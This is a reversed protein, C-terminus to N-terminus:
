AGSIATPRTGFRIGFGDPDVITFDRLGYPRDAISAFVPIHRENVKRWVADVDPVLVRVNMSPAVGKPALDPRREVMFRVGEWALLAFDGDSRLLEFGLDTYFAVSREIDHVFLEVALQEAADVYPSM